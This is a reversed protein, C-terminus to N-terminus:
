KARTMKLFSERISSEPPLIKLLLLFFFLIFYLLFLFLFFGLCKIKNECKISLKALHSIGPM